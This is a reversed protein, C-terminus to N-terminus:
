NAVSVFDDHEFAPVDHLAASVVLHFAHVTRVSSEDTQVSGPCCNHITEGWAEGDRAPQEDKADDRRALASPGALPDLDRVFRRDTAVGAARDHERVFADR